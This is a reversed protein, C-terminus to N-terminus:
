FEINISKRSALYDCMHVFREIRTKPTPLVEKKTRYDKNWEGMHSRIAKVIQDLIESKILGNIDDNKYIYDAVILPHETKTYRSKEIGSKCGDHLLLSSIIIDKQISTFDQVTHNNFLELAIKVAGKTHRVLGGEGLAYQPHYKGTSSAPVEWFYEPLSELAKVTFQKISEDNISNIETQFVKLNEEM